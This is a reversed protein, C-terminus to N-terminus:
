KTRLIAVACDCKSLPSHGLPLASTKPVLMRPNLDRRGLWNGNENCFAMTDFPKKLKWRLQKDKLELNSLVLNVLFRKQEFNAKEFLVPWKRALMLLHSINELRENENLEFTQLKRQLVDMSEQYESAKRRYMEEDILRDLKAEILGDIRNQYKKIETEIIIKDKEKQKIVSESKLRVAKSIQIYAREPITISEFLNMFQKTFEVELIYSANHKGKAQTCHGYVYKKKHIEFTVRCGCESCNILGRYAYPLGAWRKPNANHGGIVTRVREFEDTTIIREYHHPFTEGKVVMQGIYFRNKFMRELHSKSLRVGHETQIKQKVTLISNTGTGYWLFASRVVSATIPDAIVSKKGNTLTINKYGYPAKHAWEGNQKKQEFSRKVNDSLQTVYSKAFMVAMDWQLIESSNSKENMILRERIFHLELKGSRRLDDLIVSERFDRQLRDVTDVVLAVKEKDSKIIEILENFKHRNQKTSSEVLQYTKEVILNKHEAYETIRRTQAPISNNDEQEKSSVRALLYAKM